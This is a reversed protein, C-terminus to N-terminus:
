EREARGGLDPVGAPPMFPVVVVKQFEVAEGCRTYPTFKYQKVADVAAPNLDPDGGISVAKEVSGDKGVTVLVWVVGYKKAKRAADPMKPPVTKVQHPATFNKDVDACSRFDVTTSKEPAAFLADPFKDGRTVAIKADEMVTKAYSVKVFQPYANSGASFDSYEFAGVEGDVSLMHGSAADMCFTVVPQGFAVCKADTTGIKKKSVDLKAKQYDLPPFFSYPGAPDGGDLAAIAGEFEIGRVLPSPQNTFFSLKGDNLVTVQQLGAASWEARWKEPGAWSVTYEVNVDQGNAGPMRVKAVLKVPGQTWIGGQQFSKSLLDHGDDKGSAFAASTLWAAAVLYSLVQKGRRTL